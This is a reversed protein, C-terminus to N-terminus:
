KCGPSTRVFTKACDTRAHVTRKTNITLIYFRGSHKPRASFVLPKLCLQVGGRKKKKLIRLKKRDETGWTETLRWSKQTHLYPTFATSFLHDNVNVEYQTAM